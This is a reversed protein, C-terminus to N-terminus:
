NKWSIVQITCLVLHIWGDANLPSRANFCSRKSEFWNCCNGYICCTPCKQRTQGICAKNWNFFNIIKIIKGTTSSNLIKLHTKQVRFFIRDPGFSDWLLTLGSSGQGGHYITTSPTGTVVSSKSMHPQREALLKLWRCLNMHTVYFCKRKGSVLEYAAVTNRFSNITTKIRNQAPIPSREGYTEPTTTPQMSGGNM